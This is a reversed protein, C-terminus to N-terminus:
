YFLPDSDLVGGLSELFDPYEASSNLWYVCVVTLSRDGIWLRLSTVRENRRM